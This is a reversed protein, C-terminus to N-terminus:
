RWWRYIKTVFRLHSVDPLFQGEDIGIVDFEKYIPKIEELKTVPFAQM